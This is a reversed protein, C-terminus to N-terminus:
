RWLSDHRRKLRALRVSGPWSWTGVGRTSSCELPGFYFTEEFRFVGNPGAAYLPLPHYEESCCWVPHVASLVSDHLRREPGAKIPRWGKTADKLPPGRQNRIRWVAVGALFANVYDRVTQAGLNLMTAVEDIAKGEIVFLLAHIRRVLRVQGSQYAQQLREIVAQRLDRRLRIRIDM